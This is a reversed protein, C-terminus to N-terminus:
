SGNGTAALQNHVGKITQSSQRHNPAAITCTMGAGKCPTQQKEVSIAGFEEGVGQCGPILLSCMHRGSLPQSSPQLPARAAVSFACGM